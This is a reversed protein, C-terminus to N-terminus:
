CLEGNLFSKFNDEVSGINFMKDSDVLITSIVPGDITRLRGCLNKLEVKNKFYHTYDHVLFGANFLIGKMSNVSYFLTKQECNLLYVNTVLCLIIINKPKGIAIQIIQSLNQMLYVDECVIVMKKDSAMSLGFIIPLFDINCLAKVVSTNSSESALYRGIYFIVTNPEDNFVSEIYSLAKKRHM